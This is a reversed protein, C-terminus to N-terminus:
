GHKVLLPLLGCHDFHGHTLIVSELKDPDVFFNRNKEDSERRKGQFAGCDIMYLRGDIELFHKSGTVEGAAGLSFTKIEMIVKIGGLYRNYCM